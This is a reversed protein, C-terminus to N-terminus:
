LSNYSVFWPHLVDTYMSHKKKEKKNFFMLHVPLQHYLWKEFNLQPVSPNIYSKAPTHMLTNLNPFVSLVLPNLILPFFKCMTDIKIFCAVSYLVSHYTRKIMGQAMNKLIWNFLGRFVAWAFFFYHERQFFHVMQCQSMSNRAM